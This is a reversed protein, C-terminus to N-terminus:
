ILTEAFVSLCEEKRDCEAATAPSETMERAVAATVPATTSISSGARRQGLRGGRAARRTQWGTGGSAWSQWRAGGSMSFWNVSVKTLTLPPIFKMGRDLKLAENEFVVISFVVLTAESIGGPTELFVQLGLPAKLSM